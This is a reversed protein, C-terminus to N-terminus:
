EWGLQERTFVPGDACVKLRGNVTDTTCLVCTGYGCGMRQELSLQCPIDRKAAWSAVAKMMPLPGCSLIVPPLDGSKLEDEIRDLLTVVNGESEDISYTRDAYRDVYEDAFHNKRYGFVATSESNEDGAIHQAAHILPPVGLGGAVLVYNAPAKTDFAHGLPGMVDIVDGAKLEAFEGTGKGVVAFIFSVLDDQIESIGFPRPMPKMPDHTFFDVFQAPRGHAAIYPDRITMRVVGADLEAIDAIEVTHRPPFFGHSVAADVVAKGHTLREETATPM